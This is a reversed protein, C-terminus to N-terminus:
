PKERTRVAGEGKSKMERERELNSERKGQEGPEDKKM